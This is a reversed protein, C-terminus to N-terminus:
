GTSFLFPTFIIARLPFIVSIDVMHQLLVEEVVKHSAKMLSRVHWMKLSMMLFRQLSHTVTM